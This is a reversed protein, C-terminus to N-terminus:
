AVRRHLVVFCFPRFGLPRACISPLSFMKNNNVERNSNADPDLSPGSSHHVSFPMSSTHKEAPQVTALTKNDNQGGVSIQADSRRPKVEEDAPPTSSEYQERRDDPRTTSGRLCVALLAAMAALASLAALALAWIPEAAAGSVAPADRYM